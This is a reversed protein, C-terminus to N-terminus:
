NVKDNDAEKELEKYYAKKMKEVLAERKLAEIALNVAKVISEKHELSRFVRRETWESLLEIAEENNM